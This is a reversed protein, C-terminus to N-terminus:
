LGRRLYVRRHFARVQLRRRTQRHRKGTLYTISDLSITKEVGNADSVYSAMIKIAVIPNGAREAPVTYVLDKATGLANGRITEINTTEDGSTWTDRYVIGIYYKHSTTVGNFYVVKAGDIAEPM